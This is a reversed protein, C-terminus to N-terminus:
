LEEDETEEEAGSFGGMEVDDDDDDDEDEEEEEEEEQQQGAAGAGSRFGARVVEELSAVRREMRQLCALIELQTSHSAVLLSAVSLGREQSRTVQVQRALVLAAAEVREVAALRDGDPDEGRRAARYLDM